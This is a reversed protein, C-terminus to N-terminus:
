RFPWEEPPIPEPPTEQAKRAEHRKALADLQEPTMDNLDEPLQSWDLPPLEEPDEASQTVTQADEPPETHSQPEEPQTQDSAAHEEIYRQFLENFFANCSKGTNDKIWDKSGKPLNIFIRDNKLCKINIPYQKPQPQGPYRWANENSVTTYIKKGKENRGCITPMDFNFGHEITEYLTIFKREWEALEYDTIDGDRFYQLLHFEIYKLDSKRKIEKRIKTNCGHYNKLASIHQLTRTKLNKSSGVYMKGTKANVIAYVGICEYPIPNPYKFITEFRASNHKIDANTEQETTHKM